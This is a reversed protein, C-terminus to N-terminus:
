LVLEKDPELQKEEAKVDIWHWGGCECHIKVAFEGTGFEFRLYDM